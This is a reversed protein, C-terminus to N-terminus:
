GSLEAGDPLTEMVKNVVEQIASEYVQSAKM